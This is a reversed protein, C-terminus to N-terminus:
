VIWGKEKAEKNMRIIHERAATMGKTKGYHFFIIEGFPAQSSRGVRGAIQVLASETFIKNEAGLVAVQLNPVTVGRELITTTVLVPIDGNRFRAVKEKRLPDEAHVGEIRSDTRKLIDVVEKITRIHPVFLFLPKNGAYQAVWRLVNDPIKSKGLHRKWNGCWCFIPVPLPYRHFRAPIKVARRKGRKIERKWQESPTATLYILAACEKCAGAVAYQLSSDASYPFADVEDIIMTDFTRYYRLLQHTTSIVLQVNSDREKSGGYLGAINISPFAEKIRPVLELVVDTRPTAICVREGKSVACAIGKFLVETKGAGCVAWILCSQKRLVAKVVEDAARQQGESLTGRWVLPDHVAPYSVAPGIWRLLPTCESVRGMMICSRCYTCAAHCRACDYTCFLHSSTNGCRKCCYGTDTSYVGKEYMVYGNEYHQHITELSFPLEDLLLRKGHLYSQLSSSFLFSANLSLSSLSSFSLKSLMLPNMQLRAKDCLADPVIRNGQQYFRM